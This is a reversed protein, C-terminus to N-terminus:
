AGEFEAYKATLEWEILKVIESQNSKGAYAHLWKLFRHRAPSPVAPGMIYDGNRVAAASHSNDHQRYLDYHQSMLYVRYRMCIKSFFAEDEYMGAFSDEFGGVSRVAATRLTVSCTGPLGDAIRIQRLLAAPPEIVVDHEDGMMCLFDQRNEAGNGRWSYWFHLPGYVMAIDQHRRMIETQAALKEPFWVDDIDLLAIFEGRANAVGLNRSSSMGRNQRNPHCLYRVRSPHEVMLQQAKESSGDSSGDDVLILEWREYSQNFVSAIAEDFFQMGNLFITIVSVLDKEEPHQPQVAGDAQQEAGLNLESEM